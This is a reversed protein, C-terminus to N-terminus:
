VDSYHACVRIVYKRDKPYMLLDVCCCLDEFGSVPYAEGIRIDIWEGKKVELKVCELRIGKFYSSSFM